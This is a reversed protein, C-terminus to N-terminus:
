SVPAPQHGPRASVRPSNGGPMWRLERRVMWAAGTTVFAGCLLAFFSTWAAGAAAARESQTTSARDLPDPVPAVTPRVEVTGAATDRHVARRYEAAVGMQVPYAYAAAGTTAAAGGLALASFGLVTVLSWALFGHIARLCGGTMPCLYGTLLGGAALAVLGSLFWWIMAGAGIAESDTRGLAAWVSIGLALGLATLLGQISVACAAGAVIASWRVTPPPPPGPLSDSSLTDHM